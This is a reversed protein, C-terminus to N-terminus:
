GRLGASRLIRDIDKKFEHGLLLWTDGAKVINVISPNINIQSHASENELVIKEINAIDAPTPLPPENWSRHGFSRSFPYM